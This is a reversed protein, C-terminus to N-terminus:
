RVFTNVQFLRRPFRMLASIFKLPRAAKNMRTKKMKKMKVKTMM